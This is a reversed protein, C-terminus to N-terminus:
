GSGNLQCESSCRGVGDVNQGDGDDCEEVDDLQGDGCRPPPVCGPACAPLPVGYDLTINRGDDCQENGNVLGDGCFPGFTCDSQCGGYANDLNDEGDDCEEMLAKVGDGCIAGCQSRETKFGSMTLRYNSERPQREAHFVAIEYAKNAQLGFNRDETPDGQNSLTVSGELQGHTGGLDVALTGNVFVWADDDGFFSLKEGGRYVFVYRAETTFYFNHYMGTANM